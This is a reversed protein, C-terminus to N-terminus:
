QVNAIKKESRPMHDECYEQDRFSCVAMKDCPHIVCPVKNINSGKPFLWACLRCQSNPDTAQAKKKKCSICLKETSM